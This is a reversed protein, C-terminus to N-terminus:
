QLGQLRNKLNVIHLDDFVELIRKKNCSGIRYLDTPKTVDYNRLVVLERSLVFNPDAYVPHYKGSMIIDTAKKPGIGKVGPINDSSDGVMALYDWLKFPPVGFKKIVKDDDILEFVGIGNPCLMQVRGDKGDSICGMLDKDKSIISVNFGNICALNTISFILDDAEIGDQKEILIGFANLIEEIKPLQKILDEPMKQRNSKYNPFRQHRWTPKGSDMVAVIYEPKYQRFINILCQAFGYCAGTPFGTPTKLNLKQFAYYARYILAHSDIIYLEKKM